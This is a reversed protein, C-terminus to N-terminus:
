NNNTKIYSSFFYVDAIDQGESSTVNDLKIHSSMSNDIKKRYLNGFIKRAIKSIIKYVMFIKTINILVIYDEVSKIAKFNSYVKKKSIINTPFKFYMKFRKISVYGELNDHLINDTIDDICDFLM